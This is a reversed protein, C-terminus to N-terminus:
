AYRHRLVAPVLKGNHPRAPPRGAPQVCARPEIWDVAARALALLVRLDRAAPQRPLRWHTSVIGLVRGSQGILPTSQVARVGADLLVELAPTGFFVPNDAVEEIVVQEGSEFAAGCATQGDRVCHFYELFRPDFGRQAEIRLAGVGPDDLQINGMDAGTTEIAADVVKALMACRYRRLFDHGAQALEEVLSRVHRRMERAADIADQAAAFIVHAERAEPRLIVPEEREAAAPYRAPESM